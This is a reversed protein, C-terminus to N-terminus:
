TDNIASGKSPQSLRPLLAELVRSVLGSVTMGRSAAALRLRERLERDLCIQQKERATTLQGTSLRVTSLVSDLDTTHM